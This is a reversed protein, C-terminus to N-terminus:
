EVERKLAPLLDKLPQLFESLLDYVILAQSADYTHAMRNRAALMELWVEEDCIWKNAYALRLCKKPSNCEDLGQDEGVTKISKWALEFCFEFYQICGARYVDNEAPEALAKSFSELSNDYDQLIVEVRM